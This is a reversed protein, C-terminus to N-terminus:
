QWLEQALFPVKSNRGDGDHFKGNAQNQASRLYTLVIDILEHAVITMGHDSSLM